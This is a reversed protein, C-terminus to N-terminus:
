IYQRGLRFRQLQQTRKYRQVAKSGMNTKLAPLQFNTYGRVEHASSVNINEPASSNEENGLVHGNGEGQIGKDEGRETNTGKENGGNVQQSNSEHPGKHPVLAGKTMTIPQQIMLLSPLIGYRDQIEPEPLHTIGGEQIIGHGGSRYNAQLEEGRDTEWNLNHLLPHQKVVSVQDIHHRAAHEVKGQFFRRAQGFGLNQALTHTPKSSIGSMNNEFENYHHALDFSKGANPDTNTGNGTTENARNRLLENNLLTRLQSRLKALERQSADNANQLKRIIKVYQEATFPGIGNRKDESGRETDEIAQKTGAKANNKDKSSSSKKEKKNRKSKSFPIIEKSENMDSKIKKYAEIPTQASSTNRCRRSSAREATASSSVPRENPTNVESARKANVASAARGSKQSSARAGEPSNTFGQESHPPLPSGSPITIPLSKIKDKSEASQGGSSGSSGRQAAVEKKCGNRTTNTPSGHREWSQLMDLRSSSRSQSRSKMLLQFTLDQNKAKLNDVEDYLSKLTEMHQDHIFKLQLHLSKIRNNAEELNQYQDSSEIKVPSLKLDHFEEGIGQDEIEKEVEKRVEKRDKEHEKLPDEVINVQNDYPLDEDCKQEYERELELKNLGSFSTADDLHLGEFGTIQSDQLHSNVDAECLKQVEEMMMLIDEQKYLGSLTRVLKLDVEKGPLHPLSSLDDADSKEDVDDNTVKANERCSVRQQKPQEEGNNEKDDLTDQESLQVKSNLAIVTENYMLELYKQMNLLNAHSQTQLSKKVNERVSDSVIEKSSNRQQLIIRDEESLENLSENVKGEYLGNETSRETLNKLNQALLVLGEEYENLDSSHPNVNETTPMIHSNNTLPLSNPTSTSNNSSTSTPIQSEEETAM